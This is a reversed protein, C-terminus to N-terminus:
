TLIGARGLRTQGDSRVPILRFATEFPSLENLFDALKSIPVIPVGDSVRTQVERLVLLIPMISRKELDDLGYRCLVEPRRALAAVRKAQADAAIRLRPESMGVKIWHKCDIALTLSQNWALVDIERRTRHGLKIILHKLARFGREEFAMEVFKEFEQWGLIQAVKQPDCGGIVLDEALLIRQLPSQEITWNSFTLLRKENLSELKIKLDDAMLVRELEAYPWIGQKKTLELLQAEIGFM